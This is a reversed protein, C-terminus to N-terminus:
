AAKPKTAGTDAAVKDYGGAIKLAGERDVIEEAVVEGAPSVVCWDNQGQRFVVRHRQKISAEPLELGPPWIARFALDLTPPVAARNCGLVLVEFQIQHSADHVEIRDGADLETLCKAWYHKSLADHWDVGEPMLWCTNRHTHGLKNLQQPIGPIYVSGLPADENM